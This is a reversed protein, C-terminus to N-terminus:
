YLEIFTFVFLLANLIVLNFNSNFKQSLNSYDDSPSNKPPNDLLFLLTPRKIRENAVVEFTQSTTTSVAQTEDEYTDNTQILYRPIFTAISPETETTTSTTATTTTTPTTSEFPSTTSSSTSTTTSETTTEFPRTAEEFTGSLEPVIVFGDEYEQDLDDKDLGIDEKFMYKFVRSRHDLNVDDANILDLDCSILSQEFPAEIRVPGLGLRIRYFMKQNDLETEYDYMNNNLESTDYYFLSRQKRLRRRALKITGSAHKWAQQAQKGYGVRNAKKFNLLHNKSWSQKLPRELYNVMEDNLNMNFLALDKIQHLLDVTSEEMSSQDILFDALCTVNAYDQARDIRIRHSQLLLLTFLDRHKLKASDNFDFIRKPEYTTLQEHTKFDYKFITLKTKYPQKSVFYDPRYNDLKTVYTDEDYKYWDYDILEKDYHPLQFSFPFQTQDSIWKLHFRREHEARTAPKIEKLQRLFEGNLYLFQSFFVITLILM